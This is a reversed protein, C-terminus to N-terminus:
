KIKSFSQKVRKLDGVSMYNKPQQKVRKLDEVSMYKTPPKGEKAIVGARSPTQSFFERAQKLKDM